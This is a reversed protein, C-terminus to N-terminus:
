MTGCIGARGNAALTWSIRPVLCCAFRAQVALVSDNTEGCPGNTVRGGRLFAKPYLELAERMSRDRGGTNCVRFTFKADVVSATRRM